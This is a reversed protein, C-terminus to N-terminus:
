ERKVISVTKRDVKGSVDTSLTAHADVLVAKICGHLTLTLLSTCRALELSHFPQAILTTFGVELSIVGKLGFPAHGREVHVACRYVGDLGPLLRDHHQIGGGEVRFGA